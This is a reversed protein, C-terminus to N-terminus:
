AVNAVTAGERAVREDFGATALRVVFSVTHGVKVHIMGHSHTTTRDGPIDSLALPAIGHESLVIPLDTWVQRYVKSQSPFPVLRNVFHIVLLRVHVQLGALQLNRALIAIATRKIVWDPGVEHRADAEGVIGDPPNYHPRAKPARGIQFARACIQPGDEIRRELSRDFVGARRGGTGGIGTLESSRLRRERRVARVAVGEIIRGAGDSNPRPRLIEARGGNVFEAQRGFVLQAVRSRELNTIDAFGANM